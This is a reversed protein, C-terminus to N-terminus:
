LHVLTLNDLGHRDDLCWGHDDDTDDAVNLCGTTEACEGSDPSGMKGVLDLTAEVLVPVARLLLGECPVGLLVSLITSLGDGALDLTDAFVASDDTDEGVGLDALGTEGLLLGVKHLDLDVTARDGVLDLKSLSQELLGDLNRAHELLVLTHINNGYRLTVTELTNGVTPTGLLKGTLCVLTKALDSTDSCPMRGLDHEGNGTSTM